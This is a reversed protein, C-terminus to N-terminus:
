LMEPQLTLFNSINEHHHLMWSIAWKQANEPGLNGLHRRIKSFNAGTIVWPSYSVTALIKKFIWIKVSFPREWLKCKKKTKTWSQPRKQGHLLGFDLFSFIELVFSHWRAIWFNCIWPGIKHWNKLFFVIVKQGIKATKQHFFPRPWTKFARLWFTM